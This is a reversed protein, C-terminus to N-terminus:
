QIPATLNERRVPELAAIATQWDMPTVPLQRGIGTVRVRGRNGDNASEPLQSASM